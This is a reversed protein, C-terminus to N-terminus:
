SHTRVYSRAVSACIKHISNILDYIETDLEDMPKYRRRADTITLARMEIEQAIQEAVDIDFVSRM